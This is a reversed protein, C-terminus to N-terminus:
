KLIKALDYKKTNFKSNQHLRHLVLSEPINIFKKNKKILRLWFDYDEIGDLCDRWGNIDIADKKKFMASTNAIQNNGNKSLKQIDDNSSYLTPQGIIKSNKDIYSIYTGIIDYSDIYNLQKELKSSIWIDDDDQLAVWNYKCKTLLKNLTKAKGVDVGYDFIKIRHDSYSYAIDKSSNNQGNLGILLEFDSFSQNLVSEIASRLYQEGNNTPLLVSIM